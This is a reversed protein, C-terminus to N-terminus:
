FHFRFHYYKLHYQLFFCNSGNRNWSEVYLCTQMLNRDLFYGVFVPHWELQDTFKLSRSVALFGKSIVVACLLPHICFTEIQLPHICYPEIQKIIWADSLVREKINWLKSVCQDIVAWKAKFGAKRQERIYGWNHNSCWTM